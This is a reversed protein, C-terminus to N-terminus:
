GLVPQFFPLGIGSARPGITTLRLELFSLRTGFLRPLGLQALVATQARTQIRLKARFFEMM